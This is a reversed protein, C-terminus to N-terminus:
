VVAKRYIHWTAHGLVPLVVLLGLFAPVAALIVSLTVFVGWGLMVVPSALVTRVSTIMATVFDVDRELLLPISTLTVSFLVTALVAGVVHGVALFIWGQETTFVVEAFREFTSFSMRGLIIAVLLRVQYIWIWFIFLIVFAMWSLERRSQARVLSLIESWVLPEGNELRKSVSYLGVAAFPGILPFGIIVPYILWGQNASTLAAVIVLGGLTYFGAFFLGFLPARRFDALGRSFADQLDALGLARVQPMSSRPESTQHIHTEGNDSSM